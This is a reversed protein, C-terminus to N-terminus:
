VYSPYFYKDKRYCMKYPIKDPIMVEGLDYKKQIDSLEGVNVIPTNVQWVCWNHSVEVKPKKGYDWSMRFFPLEFNNELPVNGVKTWLGEKIGFKIVVHMYFYVNDEVVRNLDPTCSMDYKSNFARIVESNLQTEDLSIFQFYGKTGDELPVEFIDGIKAKTIRKAM